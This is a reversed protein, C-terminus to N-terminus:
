LGIENRTLMDRELLTSLHRHWHCRETLAKVASCAEMTSLSMQKRIWDDRWPCPITKWAKSKHHPSGSGLPANLNQSSFRKRSGHGRTTTSPGVTMGPNKKPHGPDQPGHHNFVRVYLGVRHSPVKKEVRQGPNTM